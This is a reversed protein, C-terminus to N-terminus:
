WDHLTATRLDQSFRALSEEQADVTARLISSPHVTVFVPLGDPREHWQGRESMVAVPRGLLSRAATAGLAVIARPRVLRIEHELWQSCAAAEAQSPTKHIRRKGRPEYKFHRVANTLYAEERAIGARHFARDLLDGAPGVFPRGELDERDGPQEGVFMLRPAQPGEGHVAQTAAAAIPCNTCASVASALADGSDITIAIPVAARSAQGVGFRRPPTAPSEIMSGAREGAAAMLPAILRAEPLNRWFRRPMEKEMMAVKLRAPNFISGYYTLWLQEGADPAPADDRRAGPRFSLERRDWSVCRRPTLIAWHMQAFRRMFWPANAEVIHHTPEFWAVHLTAGEISPHPVQRFRVFARMKHMEHGVAKAMKRAALVDPDLPDDRLAPERQLRWLLRYLLAFRQPDAHLSANECLQIFRAPVTVRSADGGETGRPRPPEDCHRVGESGEGSFLDGGAHTSWHVAEPAVGQSLLGRAQQRFGAFDTDGALEIRM